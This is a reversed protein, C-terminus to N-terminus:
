FFLRRRIDRFSREREDQLFALRGRRGSARHQEDADDDDDDDPTDAFILDHPLRRRGAILEESMLDHDGAEDAKLGLLHGIEHMVVTLLDVRADAHDITASLVGDVASRQFEESQLPTPDIFWGWGAANDDIRITLGTTLGLVHDELAGVSVSVQRRLVDAEADPLGAAVFLEVAADYVQRLQQNSLNAVHGPGAVPVQLHEPPDGTPLEQGNNLAALVIDTVTVEGSADLDFPGAPSALEGNKRAVAVIDTVTTRGDQNTDGRVIDFHVRRSGGLPFEGLANTIPSADSSEGSIVFQYRDTPLRDFEWAVTYGNRIGIVPPYDDNVMGHLAVSATTFSPTQNFVVEITDISTWPLPKDNLGLVSVSEVLESWGSGRLRIDIIAFDALGLVDEISAYTVHGGGTADLDGAPLSAGRIADAQMFEDRELVLQDGRWQDPDGGDIQLTGFLSDGSLQFSDPGGGGEIILTTNQGVSDVVATDSGNQLVVHFNTELARTEGENPPTSRFSFANSALGALLTVNGIPLSEAVAGNEFEVREQYYTITGVGDRTLTRDTIQYNAVAPHASDVVEVFHRLQENPDDPFRYGVTVDGLVSNLSGASSGIRLTDFRGGLSIGVPQDVQTEQVHIRNRDNGGTLIGISRAMQFSRDLTFEVPVGPDADNYELWFSLSRAEAASGDNPVTRSRVVSDPHILVTDGSWLGINWGELRTDSGLIIDEGALETDETYLDVSSDGLVTGVRLPGVGVIKMQRYATANLAGGTLQVRLDVSQGSVWFDPREEPISDWRTNSDGIWGYPANLDLDRALVLHDPSQSLISSRTLNHQRTTGENLTITTSGQPSRVTGSVIVNTPVSPEAVTQLTIDGTESVLSSLQWATPANIGEEFLVEVDGTQSHIARLDVLVSTPQFPAFNIARLEVDGHAIVSIEPRPFRENTITQISVVRNGRGVIEGSSAELHIRSGKISESASLRSWISEDSEITVQEAEVSGFMEIRSASFVDLRGGDPRNAGSRANFASQDRAVVEVAATTAVNPILLVQGTAIPNADEIGNVAALDEVTIGFQSAITGLTDGSVVTYSLGSVGSPKIQNLWLRKSSRNTIEVSTGGNRIIPNGTVRSVVDAGAALLDADFQSPLAAIRIRGQTATEVPFVVILSTEIPGLTTNDTDSIEIAQARTVVGSEDIELIAESSVTVDADFHVDRAPFVVDLSEASGIDILGGNRDSTSQIDTDGVGAEVQLQGAAIKVQDDVDISSILIYEQFGRADTDGAAAVSEANAIAEGKIEDFVASIEVSESGEISSNGIEVNSESRVNTFTLADGNTGAGGSFARTFGSTILGRANSGRLRTASPNSAVTVRNALVKAGSSIRTLTETSIGNGAITDAGAGLGKAETGSTSTVIDNTLSQISVDGRAVVRGGQVHTKTVSNRDSPLNLDGPLQLTPLTEDELDDPLSERIASRSIANSVAAGAKGSGIAASYNDRTTQSEVVVNGDAVITTHFADLDNRTLAWANSTTNGVTVGGRDTGTGFAEGSSDLRSIVEVDRRARIVAEDLDLEVRPLTLTWSDAGSGGFAGGTSAETHADAVSRGDAIISIHDAGAAEGPGVIDGAFDVQTTGIAVAVGDVNAVGIGGYAAGDASVEARNISAANINVDNGATLTGSLRALVTADAKAVPVAVVFAGVGGSTPNATAKTAFTLPQEVGDGDTRFNHAATIRIDGGANLSGRFQNVTVQSLDQATARTNGIGVLGGTAGDALSDAGTEAASRIEINEKASLGDSNLTVQVLPTALSHAVAGNFGVLGGGSATSDADVIVSGLAHVYVNRANGNEIEGDMETLINAGASANARTLGLGLVLGITLGSADAIAVDHSLAEIYVDGLTQLSAGGVNTRLVPQSRATPLAGNGGLLAGGSATAKARARRAVKRGEDDINHTARIRIDDRAMLRATSSISNQVSPQVTSRAISVGASVALGVTVGKVEVDVDATSNAAVTIAGDAQLNANTGLTADLRTNVLGTGRNGAGALLGGAGTTAELDITNDADATVSVDRALVNAGLETTATGGIVIDALVGGVGALLGVSVQLMDVRVESDNVSSIRLDGSLDFAPGDIYFRDSSSATVDNKVDVNVYGGSLAIAGAGGIVVGDIQIEDNARAVIDVNGVRGGRGIRVDDATATTSGSFELIGVSAGVAGLLSVGGGSIDVDVEREATALLEMSEASGVEALLDIQATQTSADNLVMVQAGLALLGGLSGALAFGDALEDLRSEIRVEGGADIQARTRVHADTRLEVNAIIVSGGIALGALNAAGAIADFIVVDKAIVNVDHGATIQVDVGVTAQTGENTSVASRTMRAASSGGVSTIRNGAAQMANGIAQDADLTMNADGNRDANSYNGLTEGFAVSQQEIENMATDFEAAPISNESRQVDTETTTDSSELFNFESETFEYSSDFDTAISWVTVSGTLSALGVGGSIAVTHINRPSLAKVAVNRAAFVKAGTDVYASVDNRITGIDAGGALGVIGAAVGGGVTSITLVNMALVNVDQTDNVPGHLHQNIEAREGIFATTDSDLFQITVGGGIGAVLGGAAAAAYNDISEFAQASVVVGRTGTDTLTGDPQVDDALRVDTTNALADIISFPGIYAETEKQIQLDSVSGGVGAVSIGAGLAGTINFTETNDLALVVVNGGADVHAGLDDSADADGIYATTTNDIEVYSVAGGLGFTLALGGGASVTLLYEANTATVYVDDNASLQSQDSVISSVTSRLKAVNAGPTVAGVGSLSLAAAVGLHQIDALGHVHIDGGSNVSAGTGVSAEALLDTITVAGSANLAFTGSGGGNAAISDIDDLNSATVSVGSIRQTGLTVTRQTTLPENRFEAVGDGNLDQSAAGPTGVETNLGRVANVINGDQDPSPFTFETAEAQSLSATTVTGDPVFLSGRDQQAATVNSWAGIRAKTSKDIIAVGGSAGINVTGAGSINGAIIDLETANKADVVVSGGANVTTGRGSQADKVFAHTVHDLTYVGATGAIGVTGAAGLSASVSFIDEDNYARVLVHENAQVNAGAGIFAETQKDITGVDAGAGAGVTGAGGIAGAVSLIETHDAALVNVRQSVSNVENADVNIRADEGIWAMTTENLLNVVSSGAVGATGGVTGAGAINLFDDTSTATVSVGYISEVIRNGASPSVRDSPVTIASGVGRGTVSARDDIWALTNDTKVITSNSAGVGVTGGYGLNGAVTLFDSISDAAVKVNGAALVRADQGIWAETRTDLTIVPASAQLSFTGGGGVSAGISTFQDRTDASVEINQAAEVFANARISAQVTKDIIEIDGAGGLGLTKGGAFGGAASLVTTDHESSVLVSQTRRADGPMQNIQAATGLYSDVHSTMRNLTASGALGGTGGVGVGVGFLYLQDEVDASVQLTDLATVQAGDGISATTHRDINVNGLGAGLGATKGLAISAGISIVHTQNDALVRADQAAFLTAGPKIQAEVHTDLHLSAVAAGVGLTKTAAGVSIAGSVVSESAEARFRALAGNTRATARSGLTSTVERDYLGIDGSAGVAVRGSIALAGAITVANLDDKADSTLLGASVVLSEGWIGAATSNDIQNLNASGIVGATGNRTSGGGGIAVSILVEDNRSDIDVNAATVNADLIYAQTTRTLENWALSGAIAIGGQAKSTDIAFAGSVAVALGFNDASVVVDGTAHVTVGAIFAETTTLFDNLAVDGAIGIGTKGQETPADGFLNPLSVGDLADGTDDPGSGSPISGAVSVTIMRETNNATMTVNRGATVTGDPSSLDNAYDGIFARVTTDSDDIAVTAGVGVKGALVISGTVIVGLVTNDADLIVDRNAELQATDEVWAQSDNVFDNRNWTGTVGFKAADGGTDTVNVTLNNTNSQIRVNGFAASGTAKVSAGDDIYAKARNVFEIQSFTGGVASGQSKTGSQTFLSAVGPLGGIHITEVSSNASVNVSQQESAYQPKTNVRANEGIWAHSENAVDLLNVTGSIAFKGERDQKSSGAKASAAVFTTAILDDVGLRSNIFPLFADIVLNISRVIGEEAYDGIGDFFGTVDNDENFAPFPTAGFSRFADGLDLLDLQFPITADAQVTTVGMADTTADSDIAANARNGYDTISVAGGISYATGARAAGEVHSEFNDEAYAQVTLDNMATVVAGSGVFANATNRSEALGVGASIGLTGPDSEQDLDFAKLRNEIAGIHEVGLPRPSENAVLAYAELDNTANTSHSVIEVSGTAEVVGDVQATSTSMSDSLSVGIAQGLNSDPFFIRSITSVDFHNTNRSTVHVNRGQISAGANVRSQSDTTADGLAINIAPGPLRINSLASLGPVPVVSGSYIKVQSQLDNTSSSDVIVDGGAVIASGSNLRVRSTADSEGITVGVILSPISLSVNSLATSRLTVDQAAMLEAGSELTVGSTATSNVVQVGVNTLTDLLPVSDFQEVLSQDVDVLLGSGGPIADGLQDFSQLVLSDTEIPKVETITALATTTALDLIEDFLVESPALRLQTNSVEDVRYEGNNRNSGEVLILDGDQFGDTLWSGADRRIVSAGGDQDANDVFSIQPEGTLTAFDDDFTLRDFAGVDIDLDIFKSANASAEILINQAKLTANAVDITTTAVRTKFFPTVAGWTLDFAKAAILRLDGDIDIDAGDEITIAGTDDSGDISDDALLSLNALGGGGAQGAFSVTGAVRITLHDAGGTANGRLSADPGIVLNGEITAEADGHVVMPENWTLDGVYEFPAVEFLDVALMRRLELRESVLRPVRM